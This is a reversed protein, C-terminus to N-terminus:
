DALPKLNAKRIVQEYKEIESRVFGAFAEPTTGEPEFGARAFDERMERNRLIKGVEGSLLDLVNKPIGAPGVLGYWSGTNYGPLASEAITPVDPLVSSRKLTSMGLARLRGSQIQSLVTPVSAFLVSVEGSMLGIVSTSAGKYPVHTLEVGTRSMVVEMALHTVTGFGPSGYLVQKPRSRALAVLQKVDKVPLSPHAILVSPGMAVLSIFALDKNVDFPLNTFLSPFAIASSAFLLTHGDPASKAVLGAATNGSAGPRNEIVVPQGLSENLKRGIVRASVDTGGGPSFGVVIRITRNPYQQGLAPLGALTLLALLLLTTLKM